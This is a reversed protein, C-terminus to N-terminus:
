YRLGEVPVLRKNVPDVGLFLGELTRAGLLVPEDPEGLVSLDAVAEGDIRILANAVPSEVRRGDALVFPRTAHSEIGLDALLEAPVSTLSAGSDVTAAVPRWTRPEPLDPNTVEITVQFTSM